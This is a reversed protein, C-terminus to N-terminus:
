ALIGGVILRSEVFGPLQGDLTIADEVGVGAAAHDLAQQRVSWMIDPVHEGGVDELLGSRILLCAVRDLIRRVHDGLM